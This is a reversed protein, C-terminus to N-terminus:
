DDESMPKKKTSAKKKPAPKEEEEESEDADEEDEGEEEKYGELFTHLADLRIAFDKMAESLDLVEAKASKLSMEETEEKKPKAKSATTSTKAKEKVSPKETKSAPSFGQQRGQMRSLREISVTMEKDEFANETKEDALGKVKVKKDKKNIELIEVKFKITADSRSACRFKQGVAVDSITLAAAM